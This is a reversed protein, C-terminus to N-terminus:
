IHILSLEHPFIKGEGLNIVIPRPRKLSEPLCDFVLQGLSYHYYQSMWEYLAMEALSLSLDKDWIKEVAKIKEVAVNEPLADTFSCVVGHAKRRGLPIEVLQGKELVCDSSNLYTLYAHKGPMTAAVICYKSM